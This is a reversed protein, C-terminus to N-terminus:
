PSNPPREPGVPISGTSDSLRVPLSFWITTGIGPQSEARVQGGHAMVIHKVISLGLGTGGMNRTRAKDVRYFREFIHSLKDRPIGIGHDRVYFDIYKASAAPAVGIEIEGGESSYKLANELLNIFVQELRLPDAEITKLEPAVKVSLRCSKEHTLRDWDGALNKLFLRLNIDLLDLQVRRSELRALQLLDDVLANLRDSHRKMVLLIRHREELPYDEPGLLTEVYGRFIALPTRLEHSVNSVFERRVEELQKIKSIDHFVVVAGFLRNQIDYLPSANVELARRTEPAAGMEELLIERSQQVGSSMADETLSRIEVYRLMAVMPKGVPEATLRFMTALASNAQRIIGNKDVVMFGEVMSSMTAQMNFREASAHRDLQNLKEDVAELNQVVKKLGWIGAPIYGGSKQNSALNRVLEGIRKVPLYVQQYLFWGGILLLVASISLFLTMPIPRLIRVRGAEWSCATM